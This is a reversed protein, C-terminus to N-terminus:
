LNMWLLHNKMLSAEAALTAEQFEEQDRFKALALDRNIM